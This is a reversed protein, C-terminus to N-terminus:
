ISSLLEADFIATAEKLKGNTLRLLWFYTNNARSSSPVTM